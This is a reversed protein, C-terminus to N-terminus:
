LKKKSRFPSALNGREDRTWKIPKTKSFAKYTTPTMADENLKEMRQRFLKNMEFKNINFNDRILEIMRIGKDKETTFAKVTYVPKEAFGEDFSLRARLKFSHNTKKRRKNNRM